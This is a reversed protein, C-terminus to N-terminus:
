RRTNAIRPPAPGSGGFAIAAHRLQSYKGAMSVDPSYRLPKDDLDIKRTVTQIDKEPSAPVARTSTGCQRTGASPTHMSQFVFAPGEEFLSWGDPKGTEITFGMKGPDSYLGGIRISRIRDIYHRYAAEVCKHISKADSPTARRILFDKAMRESPSLPPVTATYHM